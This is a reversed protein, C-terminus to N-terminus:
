SATGPLGDRLLPDIRDAEARAWSAWTELATLMESDANAKRRTVQAEIYARIESAQRWALTEAVLQDRREAEIKELRQREKRAAEENRRRIQEKLERQRDRRYEYYRLLSSRYMWEGVVVLGAVIEEIQDELRSDGEDQWRAKIEPPPQYWDLELKM